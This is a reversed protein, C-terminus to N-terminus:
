LINPTIKKNKKEEKFNQFYKIDIKRINKLSKDFDDLEKIYAISDPTKCIRTKYKTSQKNNIFSIKNFQNHKGKLKPTQFKINKQSRNILEKITKINTVDLKIVKPQSTELTFQGRAKGFGKQLSNSYKQCFPTSSRCQPTNGKIIDLGKSFGVNDYDFTQGDIDSYYFDGKNQQHNKKLDSLFRVPGDNKRSIQLNKAMQNLVPVHKIKFHNPSDDSIGSNLSTRRIMVGDTRKKPTNDVLSHKLIMFSPLDASM